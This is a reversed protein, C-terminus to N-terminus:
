DSLSSFPIFEILDSCVGCASSCTSVGIDSVDDTSIDLYYIFVCM